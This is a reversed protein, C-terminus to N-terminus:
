ITIIKPEAFIFNPRYSTTYAGVNKFIILDGKNLKGNYQGIIDNEMCTIGALVYDDSANNINQNEFNLVDFMIKRSHGTPKLFLKSTNLMAIKAHKYEKINLVEALFFFTDAVLAMGPELALTLNEAKVNKIFDQLYFAYDNWTPPMQEFNQAFEADIPGFLGGGINLTSIKFGKFWKNYLDFLKEARKAFDQANRNQTSYHIHLVKVSINNTTSLIKILQLMNEDNTEIGFRSELAEDLNFRLGIEVIKNQSFAINNVEILQDFSDINIQVNNQICFLILENNLFPTNIWIKNLSINQALIHKLEMLSACDFYLNENSANIIIENSYNAKVSYALNLKNGLATFSHRFNRCNAIFKNKLFLYHGSQQKNFVTLIDEKIQESIM